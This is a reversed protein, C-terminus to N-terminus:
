RWEKTIGFITYPSIINRRWPSRIIGKVSELKIVESTQALPNGRLVRCTTTLIVSMAFTAQPM